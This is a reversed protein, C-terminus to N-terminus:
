VCEFFYRKVITVLAEPSCWKVPIEKDNSTYYANELKRTHGLWM